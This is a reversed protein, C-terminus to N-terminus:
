IKLPNKMEMWSDYLKSFSWLANAPSTSPLCYSIDKYQPYKKLLLEYAIKGNCFIRNIKTDKILSPIDSYIVDEISNDSSGNITCSYVIDYLAIHLENLVKKKELNSLGNFDIGYIEKLLSWFRNKPNGYYFSNNRSIVSPFSGLILIEADKTIIPEFPHVIKNKM